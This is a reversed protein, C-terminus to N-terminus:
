YVQRDLRHDRARHGGRTLGNRARVHTQQVGGTLEGGLHDGGLLAHEPEEGGRPLPRHTCQGPDPVALGLDRSLTAEVLDRDGDGGSGPERVSPGSAEDNGLPLAILRPGCSYSSYSRFTRPGLRRTSFGSLGRGVFANTPRQAELA